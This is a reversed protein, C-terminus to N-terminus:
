YVPSPCPALQGTRLDAGLSTGTSERWHSVKEEFKGMGQLRGPTNKVELGSSTVITVM